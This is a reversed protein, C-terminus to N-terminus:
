LLYLQEHSVNGAVVIIAVLEFELAYIVQQCIEAADDRGDELALVEVAGELGLTLGGL